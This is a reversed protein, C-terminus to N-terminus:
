SLCHGCIVAKSSSRVFRHLTACGRGPRTACAINDRRDTLTVERSNGKAAHFSLLSVRRCIRIGCDKRDTASSLKSDAIVQLTYVHSLLLIDLRRSNVVSCIPNPSLSSPELFFFCDSRRTLNKIYRRFDSFMRTSICTSYAKRQVNGENLTGTDTNVSPVRNLAQPTHLRSCSIDDACIYCIFVLQVIRSLLM